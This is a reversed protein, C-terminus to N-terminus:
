VCGDPFRPERRLDESLLPIGVEAADKDAFIRLDHQQCLRAFQERTLARADLRKAGTELWPDNRVLDSAFAHAPADVIIVAAGKGGSHWADLTQDAAVYPAAFSHAQWARVPLLVAALATMGILLARGGGSGGKRTMHGWAFAAIIAASGLFGHLYRYGWGHGQLPIVLTMFIITGILGLLMARLERPAGDALRAIPWAACLILPIVVPNQWLAFRLLNAAMLALSLMGGDTFREIFIGIQRALGAAEGGDPQVGLWAYAFLDYSGWALFGAGIAVVYLCALIREGALFRELLFPLAFLPFFASQHLGMALAAPILSLLTTWSKRMLFLWLWALNFFLHGAMAYPTMATVVLQASTAMLVAVIIPASPQDPLLKRAILAALMVSGASMAPSAFPGLLQQIAANVPLYSSAWLGEEPLLRTFVPQMAPAFERWEPPIQALPVGRALIEGDARAWFEDLSLPFNGFVIYTGAAGAVFVGSALLAATSFMGWQSQPWFKELWSQRWGIMVAAIVFVLAVALDQERMFQATLHHIGGLSGAAITVAILVALVWLQVRGFQAPSLPRDPQALPGPTM